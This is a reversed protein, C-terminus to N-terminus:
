NSYTRENKAKMIKVQSEAMANVQDIPTKKPIAVAQGCAVEIFVTNGKDNRKREFEKRWNIM